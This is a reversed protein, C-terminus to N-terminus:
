SATIGSLVCFWSPRLIAVDMRLYAVILRMLQSEAAYTIGSSDTATGSDLIRINVGSTRVGLVMQGFDGVISVSDAGTGETIPLSTTYLRKLQSVWPTM